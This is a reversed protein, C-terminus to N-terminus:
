PTVVGRALEGAAMDRYADNIQDLRYRRTVLDDLNLQGQKYLDLLMPFDRPAHIGGYYSGRITKEQRAVLASPFNTASGMPALGALTLSGGPRAYALAKEQLGPLGVAEFVHDAGRGDTHRQVFALVDDDALVVSQAGFHKAVWIKETRQDVALIPTAGCLRAGQIINLGVGGCGLVLVSEGPKVGATFMAAGVGTAVACGVLAAAEFPVDRRIVICSQRPVVTREAFAALGCYSYVPEGNRSLRTTGDLMTGAWIPATYTECLNSRGRLCYFCTGCSPAWNLCVHDGVAVDSVGPGVAEVVGAGEHGPVVPMPHQTAGTALHWDSHCVGVARVRVLVEGGRPDALDLHEVRFPENPAALLAASIKMRAALTM